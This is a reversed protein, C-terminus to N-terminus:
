RGSAPAGPPHSAQPESEFIGGVLLVFIGLFVLYSVLYVVLVVTYSKGYLTPISNGGACKILEYRPLHPLNRTDTGILCNGEMVKGVKSLSYGVLYRHDAGNIEIEDVLSARIIIVFSFACVMGILFRKTLARNPRASVSPTAALATMAALVGADSLWNLQEPVLETKVVEKSILAAIAAILLAGARLGKFYALFKQKM